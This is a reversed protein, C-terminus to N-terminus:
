SLPSNTKVSLTSPLVSSTCFVTSATQACNWFPTLPVTCATISVVGAFTVVACSLFSKTLIASKSVTEVLVSFPLWLIPSASERTSPVTSSGPSVKEYSSVTPSEM